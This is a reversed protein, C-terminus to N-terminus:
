FGCKKDDKVHAQATELLLQVIKRGTRWDFEKRPWISL